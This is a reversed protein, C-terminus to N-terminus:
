YWLWNQLDAHHHHSFFQDGSIGKLHGKGWMCQGTSKPFIMDQLM